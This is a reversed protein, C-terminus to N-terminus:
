QVVTYEELLCLFLVDRGYLVKKLLAEAPRKQGTESQKKWNSSQAWFVPLTYLGLSLRTEALCVSPQTLFYRPGGGEQRLSRKQQEQSM